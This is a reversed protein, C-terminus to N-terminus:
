YYDSSAWVDDEYDPNLGGSIRATNFDDVVTDTIDSQVVYGRCRLKSDNYDSPIAGVDEPGIAVSVVRDGPAYFSSLYDKSCAHYGRSCTIEPNTDVEAWSFRPVEKGPSNDVTGTHKDTYDSNVVKFALFTGDLQIPLQNKQMFCFLRQRTDHSPNDFLRKIFTVVSNWYGGDLSARLYKSLDMEVPHGLYTFNGNGDEEIGQEALESLMNSARGKISLLDDLEEEDQNAIAAMVDWYRFDDSNVVYPVGDLVVIVSDNRSIYKLSM